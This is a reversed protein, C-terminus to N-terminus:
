YGLEEGVLIVKLRGPVRSYRTVVTQACICDQSLCDACRGYEACPTDLGLRLANPPAAMNHVRAIGSKVDPVIKNMGAIMIVHEPGHCLCAVRNGSGDINVLEGNLTIANSSMFYFDSTVIRSFMEKKEEPTVAEARDYITYDSEKLDDILGVEQITMSGGWSVSCGPTLFRKAKANAEERDACYYGEIGRLNFKEIISEALNEYYKQKFSM